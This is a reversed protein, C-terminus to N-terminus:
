VTIDLLTKTMQSAARVVQADLAFTSVALLLQRFRNAHREVGVRFRSNRCDMGDVCAALQLPTLRIARHSWGCCRM